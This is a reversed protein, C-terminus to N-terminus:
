GVAHIYSTPVCRTVGRAQETCAGRAPGATRVAAALDKDSMQKPAELFKILREVKSEQVLWPPPPLLPTAPPLGLLFLYGRGKMAGQMCNRCCRAPLRMRLLGVDGRCRVLM